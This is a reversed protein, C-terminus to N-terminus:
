PKREPTIPSAWRTRERAKPNRGGKQLADCQALLGGPGTIEERPDPGTRASKELWARAGLPDEKLDLYVLGLNSYADGLAIEAQELATERREREDKGLGPDAAASRLASLQSLLIEVARSLYREAADADRQLYRALISGAENALRADAPSLRVADAVASYSREM